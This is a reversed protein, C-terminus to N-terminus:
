DNYENQFEMSIKDLYNKLETDKIIKSKLVSLIDLRIDEEVSPIWIFLYNDKFESKLKEKLIEITPNNKERYIEIPLYIVIIPKYQKLLNEAIKDNIEM